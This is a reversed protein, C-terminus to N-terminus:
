RLRANLHFIDQTRKLCQIHDFHPLTLMHHIDILFDQLFVHNLLLNADISVTHHLVRTTTFVEPLNGLAGRRKGNMAPYSFEEVTCVLTGSTSVM